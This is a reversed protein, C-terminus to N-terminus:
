QCDSLELTDVVDSIDDCMCLQIARIYMERGLSGAVILSIDNVRGPWDWLASCLEEEEERGKGTWVPSSYSSGPTQTAAM